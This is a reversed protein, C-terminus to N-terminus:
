TSTSPSVIQVEASRPFTELALSYVDSFQKSVPSGRVMTCADSATLGAQPITYSCYCEDAYEVGAYGYNLSLCKATCKPVTMAGDVYVRLGLARNDVVDSHRDNAGLVVRPCVRVCLM